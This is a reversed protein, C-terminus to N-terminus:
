HKPDVSLRKKESFISEHVIKSLMLCDNRTEPRRVSTKKESFISEHIIKSLMLDRVFERLTKKRKM